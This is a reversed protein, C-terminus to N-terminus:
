EEEASVEVNEGGVVHRALNGTAVFEDINQMALWDIAAAVLSKGAYRLWEKKLDNRRGLLRNFRDFSGKVADEVLKTDKSDLLRAFGDTLRRFKRNGLTDVLVHPNPGDDLNAGGRRLKLSRPDWYHPTRTDCMAEVLRDINITVLQQAM